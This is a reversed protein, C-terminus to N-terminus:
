QLAQPERDVPIEITFSTGKGEVSDVTMTGGHEEVIGRAISLGLGTGKDPPKTTFFPEFLKEMDGAPIGTGNDTVRVAIRDSAEDYSTSIAIRGRRGSEDIAQEANILLNLLVQQIQQWNVCTLPLEGYDRVVEANHSRAWYTRIELTRDIIENMQALERRHPQRRSFSLLSGVFSKCREAAFSIKELYKRVTEPLDMSSLMEAYGLIGTLPNNIEHAVGSVLLGISALKDSHYLQERLRKTETVDKLSYVYVEDDGFRAPFVSVAFVEGGVTVEASAPENLAVGRQLVRGEAFLEEGLLEDARLGVLDRPHKGFRGAFSVNVRRIVNDRDTVFIYDGVADITAQWQEKSRLIEERLKKVETIDKMSYVFVDDEDFRAPFVSVAFIEGNLRAEAAAPEGSAACRELDLGKMFVDRGLLEDARMGILGRPHKDFRRAFSVNARRIINNRDTVFIYDLVADLTTQWQEKSKLIEESLVTYLEDNGLRVKRLLHRSCIIEILRSLASHYGSDKLVYDYAGEKLAGVAEAEDGAEAILIVPALPAKRKLAQLAGPGGPLPYEMFVAQAEAEELAAMALEVDRAPVVTSPVVYQAFLSEILGPLEESKGVFLINM